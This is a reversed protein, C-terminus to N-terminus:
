ETAEKVPHWRGCDPCAHAETEGKVEKWEAWLDRQPRAVAEHLATEEDAYAGSELMLGAYYLKDVSLAARDAAPLNMWRGQFFRAIKRMKSVTPPSLGIADTYERISGYGLLAWEKTSAVDQILLSLLLLDNEVRRALQEAVKFREQAAEPGAGRARLVEPLLDPAVPLKERPIPPGTTDTGERLEEAIAVAERTLERCVGEQGTDHDTWVLMANNSQPSYPVWALVVRNTTVRWHCRQPAFENCLGVLNDWTDDGGQGRSIIHHVEVQAHGLSAATASWGCIACGFPQWAEHAERLLEPDKHRGEPKLDPQVEPM